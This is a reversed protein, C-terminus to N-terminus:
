PPVPQWKDLAAGILAGLGTWVVTTSGVILAQHVPLPAPRDSLGYGLIILLGGALGGAAGLLAGRGVQSGKRVDLRTLDTLSRAKPPNLDSTGCSPAPYRCYRVESSAPGLPALLRAKEAKDRWHFQVVTGSDLEIRNFGTGADIQQAPLSTAALSAIVAAPYSRM